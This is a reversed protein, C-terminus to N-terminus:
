LFVYIYLLLPSPIEASSHCIWGYPSKHSQFAVPLAPSGMPFLQLLILYISVTKGQNRLRDAAAQHGRTQTVSHSRKWGETDIGGLAPPAAQSAEPAEQWGVGLLEQHMWGRHPPSPYSIHKEIGAPSGLFTWVTKCVCKPALMAMCGGGEGLPSTHPSLVSFGTSDCGLGEHSSPLGVWLGGEWCWLSCRFFVGVGFADNQYSTNTNVHYMKFCYSCPDYM